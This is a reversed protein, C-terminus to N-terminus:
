DDHTPLARCNELLAEAFEGPTVVARRDIRLARNVVYRREGLDNGCRGRDHNEVILLLDAEVIRDHAVDRSEAAAVLVSNRNAHEERV